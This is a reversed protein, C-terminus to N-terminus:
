ESDKVEQSHKQSQQGLDGQVDQCEHDGQHSSRIMKRQLRHLGVVHNKVNAKAFGPKLDQGIQRWVHQKRKNAVLRFMSEGSFIIKRFFRLAVM